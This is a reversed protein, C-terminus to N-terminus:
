SCKLTTMSSFPVGACCTLRFFSKLLLWSARQSSRSCSVSFAFNPSSGPAKCCKAVLDISIAVGTGINGTFLILKAEIAELICLLEAEDELPERGADPKLLAEGHADLMLLPRRGLKISIDLSEKHSIPMVESFSRPEHARSPHLLLPTLYPQLVHRTRKHKPQKLKCTFGSYEKFVYTHRSKSLQTAYNNDNMILLIHIYSSDFKSALHM